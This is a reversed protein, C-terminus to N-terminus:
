HGNDIGKPNYHECEESKELVSEIVYLSMTKNEYAAQKKIFEYIEQPMCLLFKKKMFM